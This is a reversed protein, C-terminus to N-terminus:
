KKGKSLVNVIVSLLVYLIIIIPIAIFKLMALLIFCLLLFAYRLGNEKVGWTKFKLAFLEIKANLLYVSLLTVTILFWKNLILETLFPHDQFILILPLSLVFLANAPTPLGIFSMAQDEDINFKALRYGSALTILFGLLSIAPFPFFAESTVDHHGWSYNEESMNFLQFMVVGPVVGSTVVDALSDLQLGLESQMDLLRAALGDFFDFFIGAFVFYAAMDLSGQVAYVVAITGCLMNLLTLANPIFRKM